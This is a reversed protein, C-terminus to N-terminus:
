LALALISTVFTLLYCDGALFANRCLDTKPPRRTTLAPLTATM